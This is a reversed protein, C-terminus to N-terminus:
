DFFAEKFTPIESQFYVPFRDMFFVALIGLNEVIWVRRKWKRNYANNEALQTSTLPAAFFVEAKGHIIGQTSCEAKTHIM